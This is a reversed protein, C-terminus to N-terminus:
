RYALPCFSFNYEYGRSGIIADVIKEKKDIKIIPSRLLNAFERSGKIVQQLWQMDAFVKELEGKELALDM